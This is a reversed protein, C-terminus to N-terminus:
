FTILKKILLVYISVESLSLKVTGNQLPDKSDFIGQLFLYIIFLLVFISIHYISAHTFKHKNFKSYVQHWYTINQKELFLDRTFNNLLNTYM